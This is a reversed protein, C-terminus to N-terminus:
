TGPNERGSTGSSRRSGDRGNRQKFREADAPTLVWTGASQVAEPILIFKQRGIILPPRVLPPIAVM